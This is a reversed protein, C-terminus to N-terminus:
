RGEVEDQENHENRTGEKPSDNAAAEDIIRAVLTKAVRVKREISKIEARLTELDPNV